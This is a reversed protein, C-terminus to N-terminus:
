RAVRMSVGRCGAGLTACSVVGGDMPSRRVLEKGIGLGEVIGHLRGGSVRQVAAARARGATGRQAASGGVAEQQRSPHLQRARGGLRHEKQYALSSARM